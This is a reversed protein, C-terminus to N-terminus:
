DEKSKERWDLPTYGLGELFTHYLAECAEWRQKYNGKIVVSTCPHELIEGFREQERTSLKSWTWSKSIMNVFDFVADEKNKNM